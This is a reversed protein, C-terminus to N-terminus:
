HIAAFAPERRKDAVGDAGHAGDLQISVAGDPHACAFAKKLARIRTLGPMIYDGQRQSVDNRQLIVTLRTVEQRGACSRGTDEFANVIAAGPMAGIRSPGYM